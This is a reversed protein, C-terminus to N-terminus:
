FEFNGDKSAKIVWTDWHGEIDKTNLFLQGIYYKAAEGDKFLNLTDWYYVQAKISDDNIYEFPICESLDPLYLGRDLISCHQSEVM